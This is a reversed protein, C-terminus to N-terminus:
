GSDKLESWWSQRAKIKPKVERRVFEKLEHWLNEIPNADPVLQTLSLRSRVLRSTHKTRQIVTILAFSSGKPDRCLSPSANDWRFYM